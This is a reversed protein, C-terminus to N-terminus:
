GGGGEVPVIKLAFPKRTIDALAEALTWADANYASVDNDNDTTNFKWGLTQFKDLLLTRWADPMKWRIIRGRVVSGDDPDTLLAVKETFTQNGGHKGGASNDLTAHNHLWNNATVVRSERLIIIRHKTAAEAATALFAALLLALIAIRNRM